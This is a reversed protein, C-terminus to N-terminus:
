ILRRRLALSVAELKSHADLKRLINQVHNRVTTVSIFLSNAIEETGVGEALLRLVETERATLPPPEAGAPQHVRTGIREVLEGQQAGAALPQLLHLVTHQSARPGPVVVISVSVAVRREASTRLSIEFHRVGEGRRVMREVACNDDCFRNGFSDMGCLVDHCPKGLVEAAGYGLLREAAKNWIVVRGEEDTGVVADATGAVIDLPDPAM